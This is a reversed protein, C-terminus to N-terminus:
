GVDEVAKRADGMGMSEPTVTGVYRVVGSPVLCACVGISRLADSLYAVDEKSLARDVELVYAPRGADNQLIFAGQVFRTMRGVDVVDDVREAIYEAFEERGLVIERGAVDTM